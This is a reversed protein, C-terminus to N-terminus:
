KGLILDLGANVKEFLNRPLISVCDTLFHKDITVIQSINAVSDHPLGTSRKPLMVNGPAEALRLNRTIVLVVVTSIASDNFADKQVVLVPRRYGPESRMPEPLSAWWIEGRQIVM